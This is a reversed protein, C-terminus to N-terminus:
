FNSLLYFYILYPKTEDLTFSHNIYYKDYSMDRKGRIFMMLAIIITMLTLRFNDPRNQATNHAVTTCQANCHVCM